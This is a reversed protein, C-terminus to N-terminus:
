RAMRAASAPSWPPLFISTSEGTKYRLNPHYRLTPPVPETIGRCRLYREVPSNNAPLTESWIRRGCELNRKRVADEQQRELSARKVITPNITAINIPFGTEHALLEVADKFSLRYVREAFDIADGHAGCGFCHYFRKADNISFSARKDQHFPCLGVWEKGQRKLPVTRRVLVSLTVRDRIMEISARPILSDSTNPSM